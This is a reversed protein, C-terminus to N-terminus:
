GANPPESEPLGPAPADEPDLDPPPGLPQDEVEPGDEDDSQDSV